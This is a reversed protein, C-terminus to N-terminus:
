KESSPPRCKKTTKTHELPCPSPPGTAISRRRWCVTRTVFHVFLQSRGVFSRVHRNPNALVHAGRPSRTHLPSSSSYFTVTVKHIPPFITTSNSVRALVISPQSHRERLDHRCRKKLKLVTRLTAQSKAPSRPACTVYHANEASTCTVVLDTPEAWPSVRSNPLHEHAQYNNNSTMTRSM